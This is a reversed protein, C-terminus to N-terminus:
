PVNMAVGGPLRTIRGPVDSGLRMVASARGIIDWLVSGICVIESMAPVRQCIAILTWTSFRM